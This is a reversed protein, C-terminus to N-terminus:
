TLPPFDSPAHSMNQVFLRFLRFSVLKRHSNLHKRANGPVCALWHTPCPRVRRRGHCFPLFALERPEDRTTVQDEGEGFEEVQLANRNAVHSARLHRSSRVTTRDPQAIHHRTSAKKNSALLNTEMCIKNHSPSEIDRASSAAVAHFMQFGSKVANKKKKAFQTYQKLICSRSGTLIDALRSQCTM